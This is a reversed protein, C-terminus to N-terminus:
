HKCGNVTGQAQLRPIESKLNDFLSNLCAQFLSCIEIHFSNNWIELSIFRLLFDSLIDSSHRIAAASPNNITHTFSCGTNSFRYVRTFPSSFFFLLHESDGTCFNVRRNLTNFERFDRASFIRILPIDHEHM